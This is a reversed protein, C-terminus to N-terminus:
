RRRAPGKDRLLHPYGQFPGLSRPEAHSFRVCVGERVKKYFQPLLNVRSPNNDPQFSLLQFLKLLSFSALFSVNVVVCFFVCGLFIFKKIHNM